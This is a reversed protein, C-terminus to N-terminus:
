LRGKTIMFDLSSKKWRLFREKLELKKEMKTKFHAWLDWPKDELTLDRVWSDYMEWAPRKRYYLLGGFFPSKYSFMEVIEYQDEPIGIKVKVKRLRILPTFMTNELIIIEQVLERISIDVRDWFQVAMYIRDIKYHRHQTYFDYQQKTFNKFDRANHERGSEDILMTGNEILINGLDHHCNLKQCGRISYNSFCPIGKNLSKKAMLALYTSKGSGPPGMIITIM